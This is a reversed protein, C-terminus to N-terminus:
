KDKKIARLESILDKFIEKFTESALCDVKESLANLSSREQKRICRYSECHSIPQNPKGWFLCQKIHKNMYMCSKCLSEPQWEKNKNLYHCDHCPHYNLPVGEFKCTRCMRIEKSKVEEDKEDEVKCAINKPYAYFWYGYKFSDAIITDKGLTM